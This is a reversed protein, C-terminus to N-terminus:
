DKCPPNSQCTLAAAQKRSRHIVPLLIAMLLVLIAIVVLLEVLTFAGHPGGPTTYARTIYARQEDHERM